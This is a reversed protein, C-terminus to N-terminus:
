KKISPWVFDSTDPQTPETQKPKNRPKRLPKNSMTHIYLAEVKDRAWPTKRLFKLSSKISPSDTFCKINVQEGMTKFGLRQELEVLIQELTVGHLPNKPQNNM